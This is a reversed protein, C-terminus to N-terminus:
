EGINRATNVTTNAVGLTSQLMAIVKTLEVADANSIYIVDGARMPFQQAFFFGAPDAFNV